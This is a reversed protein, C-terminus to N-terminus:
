AAKSDSDNHSQKQTFWVHALYKAERVDAASRHEIVNVGDAAPGILDLVVRGPENSRRILARYAWRTGASRRLHIEAAETTGDRRWRFSQRAAPPEYACAGVCLLCDVPQVRAAPAPQRVITVQSDEVILWIGLAIQPAIQELLATLTTTQYSVGNGYRPTAIVLGPRPLVIALHEFLLPPNTNRAMFTESILFIAAM